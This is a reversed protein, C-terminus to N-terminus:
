GGEKVCRQLERGDEFVEVSDGTGGHPEEYVGECVREGQGRFQGYIEVSTGLITCHECQSGLSVESRCLFVM